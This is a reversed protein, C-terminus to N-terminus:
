HYRSRTIGMQRQVSHKLRHAAAAARLGHSLKQAVAHVVVTSHVALNERNASAGNQPRVYLQEFTLATGM